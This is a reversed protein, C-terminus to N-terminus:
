LEPPTTRYLYRDRPILVWFDEENINIESPHYYDIVEMMDRVRRLKQNGDIISMNLAMSKGEDIARQCLEAIEEVLCTEIMVLRGYFLRTDHLTIQM